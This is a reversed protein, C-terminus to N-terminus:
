PPGDYNTGYKANCEDVAEDAVKEKDFLSCRYEIVGKTDVNHRAIWYPCFKWMGKNFCKGDKKVVPLIMKDSFTWSMTNREEKKNM